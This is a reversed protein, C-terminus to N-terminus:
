IIKFQSINLPETTSKILLAPKDFNYDLKTTGSGIGTKFVGIPPDL